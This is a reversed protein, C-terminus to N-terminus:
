KYLHYYGYQKYVSANQIMAPLLYTDNMYIYISFVNLKQKKCATKIIDWKMQALIVLYGCLKKKNNSYNGRNKNSSGFFFDLVNARLDSQKNQIFSVSYHSSWHRYRPWM